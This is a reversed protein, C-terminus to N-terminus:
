EVLTVVCTATEQTTTDRCTVTVKEGVYSASYAPPNYKVSSGSGSITGLAPDRSWSYSHGSQPNKVSITVTSLRGQGIQADITAPSLSLAVSHSKGSSANNTAANASASGGKAIHRLTVTGFAGGGDGSDTTQCTVVQNLFSGGAEPMSLATYVVSSGTDRSLRGIKPDSLTWKYGNWGSASLVSTQGKASLDRVSASVELANGESSECGCLAALCAVAAAAAASRFSERAKM